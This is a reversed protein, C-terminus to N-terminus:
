SLDFTKYLTLDWTWAPTMGHAWDVVVEEKESAIVTVDMYDLSWIRCCDRSIRDENM